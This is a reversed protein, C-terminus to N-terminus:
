ASFCLETSDLKQSFVSCICRMVWGLDGDPHVFGKATAARKHPCLARRTTQMMSFEDHQVALIACWVVDRVSRSHLTSNLTTWAEHEHNVDM